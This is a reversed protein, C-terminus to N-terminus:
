GQGVRSQVQLQGLIDQVTVQEIRCRSSVKYIRFGIRSQWVGLVLRTYGLDWEVRYVVCLALRKYGSDKKSYWVGLALRTYGLGQRVRSQELDLALMTDGSGQGVRRQVLLQGLIDQVTVQEIRCRSSVKYIRFGIAHESKRKEVKQALSM